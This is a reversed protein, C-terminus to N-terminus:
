IRECRLIGSFVAYLCNLCCCRANRTFTINNIDSNGFILLFFGGLRNNIGINIPRVSSISVSITNLVNILCVIQFCIGFIRICVTVTKGISILNIIKACIRYLSIGILVTDIVTIFIGIFIFEAIFLFISM